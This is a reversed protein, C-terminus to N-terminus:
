HTIYTCYIVQEANGQNKLHSKYKDDVYVELDTEGLEVAIKKAKTFDGGSIFADIAEKALGAQLLM